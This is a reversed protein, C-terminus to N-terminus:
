HNKNSVKAAKIDERLTECSAARQNAKEGVQRV